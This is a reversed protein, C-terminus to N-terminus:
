LSRVVLEKRDEAATVLGGCAIEVAMFSGYDSRCECPTPVLTNEWRRKSIEQEEGSRPDRKDYGAGGSHLFALFRWSFEKFM